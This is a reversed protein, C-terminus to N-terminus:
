ASLERARIGTAQTRARYKQRFHRFSVGHVVGKGVRASTAARSKLEKYYIYVAHLTAVEARTPLATMNASLFVGFHCGAECL